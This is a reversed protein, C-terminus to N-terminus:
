DDTFEFSLHTIEGAENINYIISELRHDKMTEESWNLVQDFSPVWVASNKPTPSEDQKLNKEVCTNGVRVIAQKSNIEKVLKKHNSDLPAM